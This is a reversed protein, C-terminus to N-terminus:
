FDYILFRDDWHDTRVRARARARREHTRGNKLRFFFDCVRHFIASFICCWFFQFFVFWRPVVSLLFLRFYCFPSFFWGFFEFKQLFRVFCSESRFYAQFNFFLAFSSRIFFSYRSEPHFFRVVIKTLASRACIEGGGFPTGGLVGNQALIYRKRAWRGFFFLIKPM